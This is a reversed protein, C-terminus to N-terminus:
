LRLWDLLFLTKERMLATKEEIKNKYREMWSPIRVHMTLSHKANVWCTWESHAYTHTHSSIRGHFHRQRLHLAGNVLNNVRQHWVACVCLLLLMEAARVGKKLCNLSAWWRGTNFSVQRHRAFTDLLICKSLAFQGNLQCVACPWEVADIRHLVLGNLYNLLFGTKPLKLWFYSISFYCLNKYNM